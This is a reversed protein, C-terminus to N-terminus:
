SPLLIWLSSQFGIYSVGIPSELNAGEYWRAGGMHLSSAISLSMFQIVSESLLVAYGVPFTETEGLGLIPLFVEIPGFLMWIQM